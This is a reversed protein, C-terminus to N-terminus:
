MESVLVLQEKLLEAMKRHASGLSIYYYLLLSFVNITQRIACIRRLFYLPAAFFYQM